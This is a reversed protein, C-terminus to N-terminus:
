ENKKENLARVNTLVLQTWSTTNGTFTSTPLLLLLFQMLFQGNRLIILFIYSSHQLLSHYAYVSYISTKCSNLTVSFYNFCHPLAEHSAYCRFNTRCFPCFISPFLHHVSIGYPSFLPFCPPPLLYGIDLSTSQWPTSRQHLRSCYFWFNLWIFCVVQRTGIVCMHECMSVGVCTYNFWPQALAFSWCTMESSFAFAIRHIPIICDSMLTDETPLCFGIHVSLM